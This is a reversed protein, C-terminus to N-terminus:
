SSAEQRSDPRGHGDELFPVTNLFIQKLEDTYGFRKQNIEISKRLDGDDHRQVAAAWDVLMEVVDVLNMGRIGDPFHEPHHRNSKYHHALAPGLEKLFAQYEASGYTTGKLKSTFETFGAVEPPALKSQDHADARDLLNKVVLHLFKQVTRIHQSTDANTAKEELTLETSM